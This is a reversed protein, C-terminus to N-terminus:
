WSINSDVPVNTPISVDWKHSNKLFNGRRMEISQSSLMAYLVRYRITSVWSRAKHWSSGGHQIDVSAVERTDDRSRPLPCLPGRTLFTTYDSRILFTSHNWRGQGLAKFRLLHLTIRDVLAKAGLSQTQLPVSLCPLLIPRIFYPSPTSMQSELTRALIPFTLEAQRMNPSWAIEVEYVSVQPSYGDSLGDSENTQRVYHSSYPRDFYNM